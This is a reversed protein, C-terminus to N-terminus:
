FKIQYTAGVVHKDESDEDAKNQHCYYLAIEHNKNLKYEAGVTLRTKKPEPQNYLEYPYM